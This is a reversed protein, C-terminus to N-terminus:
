SYVRFSLLRPSTLCDVVANKKRSPVFKISHNKKNIAPHKSTSQAIPSFYEEPNVRNIGLMNVIIPIIILKPKRDKAKFLRGSPVAYAIQVPIPVSPVTTKPISNNLSGNWITLTININKM